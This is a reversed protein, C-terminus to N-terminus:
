ITTQIIGTKTSIVGTAIAPTSQVIMMDDARDVSFEMNNNDFWVGYILITKAGTTIVSGDDQTRKVGPANVFIMLPSNQKMIDYSKTYGFAQALTSEYLVVRELNLKYSPLGPVVEVPRGATNTNLERRYEAERSTEIKIKQVSGVLNNTGVKKLMSNVLDNQSKFSSRMITWPAAYIDCYIRPRMELDRLIDDAEAAM